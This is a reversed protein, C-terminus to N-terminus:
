AVIECMRRWKSASRQSCHEDRWGLVELASFQELNVTRSTNIGWYRNEPHAHQLSQSLRDFTAWRGDTLHLVYKTAFTNILRWKGITQRLIGCLLWLSPVFQEDFIFIFHETYYEHQKLHIYEVQSAHACKSGDSILCEQVSPIWIHDAIKITLSTAPFRQDLM